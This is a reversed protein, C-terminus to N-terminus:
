IHLMVHLFLCLMPMPNNFHSLMVEHMNVDYIWCGLAYIYIRNASTGDIWFGDNGDLLKEGCRFHTFLSFVKLGTVLTICLLASANSFLYYAPCIM